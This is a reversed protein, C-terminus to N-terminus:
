QWTLFKTSSAVTWCASLEESCRRCAAFEHGAPPALWPPRSGDSTCRGWRRPLGVHAACWGWRRCGGRERRPWRNVVTDTGVLVHTANDLAPLLRSVMGIDVARGSSCFIRPCVRGVRLTRREPTPSAGAVRVHIAVPTRARVGGSWVGKGLRNTPRREGLTKPRRCVDHFISPICVRAHPQLVIPECAPGSSCVVVTKDDLIEWYAQSLVDAGPQLEQGGVGDAAPCVEPFHEDAVKLARITVGPKCFSMFRAIM